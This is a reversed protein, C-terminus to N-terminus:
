VSVEFLEGGPKHPDRPIVFEFDTNLRQEHGMRFGDRETRFIAEANGGFITKDYYTLRAIYETRTGRKRRQTSSSFNKM